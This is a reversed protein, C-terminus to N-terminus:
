QVHLEHGFATLTSGKMKSLVTCVINEYKILRVLVCHSSIDHAHNDIFLHWHTLEKNSVGKFQFSVILRNLSNAPAFLRFV